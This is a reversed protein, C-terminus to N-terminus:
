QVKYIRPKQSERRIAQRIVHMRLEVCAQAFAEKEEDTATPLGIFYSMAEALHTAVKNEGESYEARVPKDSM